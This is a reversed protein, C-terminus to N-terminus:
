DSIETSAVEGLESLMKEVASDTFGRFLVEGVDEQNIMLASNEGILGQPYLVVLYDYMHEDENSIPFYGIVILPLTGEQKQRFVSGIPLLGSM